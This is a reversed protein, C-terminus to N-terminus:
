RPTPDWRVDLAKRGSAAHVQRLLRGSKIRYPDEGPVAARDRETRGWQVRLDRPARGGPGGFDHVLLEIEGRHRDLGQNPFRSVDIRKVLLRRRSDTALRQAMEAAAVAELVQERRDEWRDGFRSPPRARIGVVEPLRLGKVELYRRYPWRPLTSGDDALYRDEERWAGKRDRVRIRVRAVPRRLRVRVDVADPYRVRVEEVRSVFPHRLIQERVRAEADPDYISTSLEYIRPDSLVKQYRGETWSPLDVFRISTPALRYKDLRYAQGRAERMVMGGILIVLALGAVRLLLHGARGTLLAVIRERYTPPAKRRGM